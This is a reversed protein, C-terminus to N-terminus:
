RETALPSPIIFWGNGMLPDLTAAAQPNLLYEFLEDFDTRTDGAIAVLCANEALDERRTQKRDEPYRMLLLQDANEIDLGSRNLAERISGVQNAPNASIWAIKVGAARLQALASPLGPAAREVLTPDFTDGEPDLDILVTAENGNCAARDPQLSARDALVASARNQASRSQQRNAYNILAAFEGTALPRPATRAPEPAPAPPPPPIVVPAAAETNMAITASPAPAPASAPAPEPARPTRALPVTAEVPEDAAAVSSLAAAAQAASVSPADAASDAFAAQRNVAIVRLPATSAPQEAPAAAPPTPMEEVVPAAALAPEPTAEAVPVPEAVVVAEAASVSEPQVEADALAPGEPAAIVEPAPDPEVASMPPVESAEAFAVTQDATGAAETPAEAVALAPTEEAVPSAAQAPSREVTVSPDPAPQAQAVANDSGRDLSSGGMLGGAAFPVVAAVCGQLLTASGALLIFKTTRSRGM